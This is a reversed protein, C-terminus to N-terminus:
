NPIVSFDVTRAATAQGDSAVLKFTYTSGEDVGLAAIDLKVEKQTTGNGVVSDVTDWSLWSPNRNSGVQTVGDIADLEVSQLTITDGDTDSVVETFEIFGNANVTVTRAM